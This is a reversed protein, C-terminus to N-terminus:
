PQKRNPKTAGGESTGRLLAPSGKLFEEMHYAIGRFCRRPHPAKRGNFVDLFWKMLFEARQERQTMSEGETSRCCLRVCVGGTENTM